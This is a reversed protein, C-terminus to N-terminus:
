RAVAAIPGLRARMARADALLPLDPDANKWTALLGDLEGVADSIQGLREYAQARVLVARPWNEAVEFWGGWTTNIGRLPKMAEIAEAPRDAALLVEGLLYLVQAEFFRTPPRVAAAAITRLAEISEERRNEHELLLARYLAQPPSGESLKSATRAAAVFDGRFALEPALWYAQELSRVFQLAEIAQLRPWGIGLVQARLVPGTPPLASLARLADQRKGLNAQLSALWLSGAGREEDTAGQLSLRRLEREAEDPRGVYALVQYTWFPVFLSAGGDLRIAERALAVAEEVNGGTATAWALIATNAATPRAAVGARAFRIAEAVRGSDDLLRAFDGLACIYGADLQLARRFAAEARQLEGAGSLVQAAVFQSTKDDPYRAALQEALHIAKARDDKDLADMALVITRDKEPMRAASALAARAHAAAEAPRNYWGLAYALMRHATALNPDLELARRWEKVASAFEGYHANLDLGRVYHQYAELNMTLAEGVAIRSADIEESPEDGLERRTRESLRDIVALLGEKGPSEEKVTFLYRDREPDIARMEVVYKSGLRHVGVVLLAKVKARRAIDRGLIEDIREPEVHAVQRALDAFRSRTLVGLRRSQELSVILLGSLVNLEPEGTSNAIDAVAVLPRQDARPGGYLKKALDPLERVVIAGAAASFVM